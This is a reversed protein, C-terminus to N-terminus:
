LLSQIKNQELKKNNFCNRSHEKITAYNSECQIYEVPIDDDIEFEFILFNKSIPSTKNIHIM